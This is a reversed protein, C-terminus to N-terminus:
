ICVSLTYNKFKYPKTVPNKGPVDETVNKKAPLLNIRARTNKGLRNLGVLTM